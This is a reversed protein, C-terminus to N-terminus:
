YSEIGSSKCKCYNQCVYIEVPLTRFMDTNIIRTYFVIIGIYFFTVKGLLSRFFLPDVM